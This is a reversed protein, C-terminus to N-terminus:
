KIGLMAGSIGVIANVDQEAQSRICELRTYDSLPETTINYRAIVSRIYQICSRDFQLFSMDFLVIGNIEARYIFIGDDESLSTKYGSLILERDIKRFFLSSGGVHANYFDINNVHALYQFM